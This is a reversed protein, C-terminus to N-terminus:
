LSAILNFNSSVLEENETDGEDEVMNSRLQSVEYELEAKKRALEEINESIDKIEVAVM